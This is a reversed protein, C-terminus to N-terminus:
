AVQVHQYWGHETRVALSEAATGRLSRGIIGRYIFALDIIKAEVGKRYITFTLEYSLIKRRRQCAHHQVFVNGIVLEGDFWALVM